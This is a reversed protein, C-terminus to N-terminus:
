RKRQPEEDMREGIRKLHRQHYGLARRSFPESDVMHWTGSEDTATGVCLGGEGDQVFALRMRVGPQKRLEFVPGALVIKEGSAFGASVGLQQLLRQSKVSFLM